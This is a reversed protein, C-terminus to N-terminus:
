SEELEWDHLLTWEAGDDDVWEAEDPRVWVYDDPVEVTTERIWTTRVLITKM